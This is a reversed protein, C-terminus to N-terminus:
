AVLLADVELIHQQDLPLRQRLNRMIQARRNKQSQTVDQSMLFMQIEYAEDFNGARAECASLLELAAPSHHLQLAQKAYLIGEEASICTSYGVGAIWALAQNATICEPYRQSIKMYVREAEAYKNLRFLVEGYGLGCQYDEAYTSCRFVLEWCRESLEYDHLEKAAMAAHKMLLADGRNWLEGSQYILLAKRFRGQKQECLGINFLAEERYKPESLLERFCRGAEVYDECIRYAHGLNCVVDSSCPGMTRAHSYCTIADQYRKLAFYIHGLTFHTEQHATPSIWVEIIEFARELRGLHVLASAYKAAAHEEFLEHPVLSFAKACEKYAGKRFAKYALELFFREGCLRSRKAECLLRDVEDFRGLERLIRMYDFLCQRRYYRKKLLPLLKQEAEAWTKLEISLHVERLIQAAQRHFALVRRYAKILLASMLGVVLTWSVVLWM